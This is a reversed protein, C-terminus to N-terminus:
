SPRSERREDRSKLDFYVMALAIAVYPVLAVYVASSVINVYFLPLSKYALILVVGLAPAAALGVVGLTITAAGSWWWDSAVATSSASFSDQGTRGDLLVAQELFTWRVAQRLAFPIGIVTFALAGVVLVAALRPLALHPLRRWVQSFSAQVSTPAGAEYNALAATAAALVVAYALGFELEALALVLIVEQGVNSTPISVVADVPSLNLVLWHAAAVVVAAPIFVLGIGLFLRARRRYVELASLLIQGIRRRSRLPRAQIPLYRTRTLSVLVGLSSAAIVVAAILPLQLILPLLLHSGSAVLSCFAEVADPGIKTRSPVRVSSNRLGDEWSSPNSWQEKMAPGTPGDFEPGALEGWRGQFALWAFPHNEDTVEAPVLLAELPVRRHPPSADDCGFGANTEARGLYIHPGFLSAHSGAAVYVVPRFGELRVKKDTWLGIEGGRHGGYGIRVPLLTLAEAASTAEFVLQIREWDGEHKNNWDNFYYFFWYQLALEDSDPSRVIHAYAVPPYSAAVSRFDREYRCGPRRPNGPLDLHTDAGALYLDRATPAFKILRGDSQRLAVEPHELVIEV